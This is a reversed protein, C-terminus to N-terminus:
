ISKMVAIYMAITLIFTRAPKPARLYLVIKDVRILNNWGVHPVPHNLDNPIKIVKGPIWGLGIHQGNEESSDAM